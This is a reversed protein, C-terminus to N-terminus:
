PRRAYWPCCRRGMEGSNGKSVSEVPAELDRLYRAYFRAGSTRVCGVRRTPSPAMQGFGTEQPTRDAVRHRKRQRKYSLSRRVPGGVGARAPRELRGLVFRGVRPSRGLGDPCMLVGSPRRRGQCGRVQRLKRVNTTRDRWTHNQAGVARSGIANPSPCNRRCPHPKRNTNVAVRGGPMTRTPSAPPVPLLCAPLRGPARLAGHLIAARRCM